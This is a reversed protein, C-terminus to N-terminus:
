DVGVKCQVYLVLCCFVAYSFINRLYKCESYEKILHPLIPLLVLGSLFIVIGVIRCIKTLLQYLAALKEQNKEIIPKYMCYIIASSVGMEAVNLFDIMSTYLANLGNLDNGIYQILVRRNVIAGALLIFRFIISVGVNLISRKKDM